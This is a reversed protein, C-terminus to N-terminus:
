LIDGAVYGSSMAWQLNYGGCNGYVDLVEGCVRIKPFRKLSLDDNLESLCLGGGTVQAKSYDGTIKDSIEYTRHKVAGTLDNIFSDKREDLPHLIHNILKENLMGTLIDKIGIGPHRNKMSLIHTGFGEDDTEPFLDCEVKVQKKERVALAAEGSLDFACIGSLGGEYPQLEGRSSMKLRGDTILSLVARCRVGKLASLDEKVPLPCLAPYPKIMRCGMDKLLKMGSGDSGTNKATLGGAALIVADYDDGNVMGEPMLEKIDKMCVINVKLRKLETKLLNLVTRSTDTYPYIGGNKEKTYLGLKDFFDLTEKLGFRLLVGSILGNDTSSHYYEEGMNLNTFNCKGNGTVLLKKGISDTHEYITVAHGNSAAKIAAFIGSAGGGIVAVKKRDM